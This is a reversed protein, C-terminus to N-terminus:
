KGGAIELALPIGDRVSGALFGTDILRSVILM